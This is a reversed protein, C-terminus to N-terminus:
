AIRQGLYGSINGAFNSWLKKAVYHRYPNLVRGFVGDPARGSVSFILHGRSDVRTRFTITAPYGEIHGRHTNFTFSTPIVNSVTVTDITPTPRLRLDYTSGEEISSEGRTGKISFPFFSGPDAQIASMVAEPSGGAGLDYSYTYSYLGTLDSCNVPDGSCYDYDNASGGAVPDVPPRVTTPM